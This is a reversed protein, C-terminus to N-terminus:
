ALRIAKVTTGIDMVSVISSDHPLLHGNSQLCIAIFGFVNKAGHGVSKQFLMMLITLRSGIYVRNVLVALLQTGLWILIAHVATHLTAIFPM